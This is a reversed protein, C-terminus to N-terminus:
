QEAPITIRVETYKGHESEIFLGYRTGYHLQIRSNVNCLGVKDGSPSALQKKIEMLRDQDIGIADDRITFEITKAKVQCTIEITVHKTTLKAGHQISNEIVPQLILKLTKFKLANEDVNWVCCFNDFRSSMITAYTKTYAIEEQIEITSQERNTIFRFLKSLSHIMKISKETEQAEVLYMLNELTNYLFHPKIQSQLANIQLERKEYKLRTREKNSEITQHILKDMKDMMKKFNRSLLDIEHIGSLGEAVSYHSGKLDFANFLRNLQGLPKLLRKSIWYSVIVILVVIVFVLYLDNVFLQNVKQRIDSDIYKSTLIWDVGSIKTSFSLTQSQNDMKTGIKSADHHSVFNAQNDVIFTDFNLEKINSYSEVLNSQELETTIFGIKKSFDNVSFIPMALLITVHDFRDKEVFYNINRNSELLTKYFNSDLHPDVHSDTAYDLKNSMNYVGIHQEKMGMTQSIHAFEREREKHPSHNIRTQISPDLSLHSLSVQYQQIERNIIHALREHTMHMSAQVDKAVLKSTQWYYMCLFLLLPLLISILFYFFFREFLSFKLPKHEGDRFSDRKKHHVRNQIRQLLRYLPRLIRMSIITSSTMTITVTFLLISVIIKWMQQIQDQYFHTKESYVLKFNSYPISTAYMEVDKNRFVLNDVNKQSSAFQSLIVENVKKGKFLLKDKADFLAIHDAYFIHKSLAQPQIFVLVSGYNKGDSTGVNAGFFMKDNLDQFIYTHNHTRKYLDSYEINRNAEGISVFYNYNKVEEKMQMGNYISDVEKQNSSYQADPTVIVINEILPNEQQVSILNSQLNQLANYREMSGLQKNEIDKLSQIVSENSNLNDIKHFLDEFYTQLERSIHDVKVQISTQRQEEIFKKTKMYANMSLAILLIIVISFSIILLFHQFSLKRKLNFQKGM